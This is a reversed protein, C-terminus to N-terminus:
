SIHSSLNIISYNIKFCIRMLMSPHLGVKNQLSAYSHDDNEAVEDVEMKLTPASELDSTPTLNQAAYSDTDQEIKVTLVADQCSTSSMGAICGASGQSSMMQLVFNNHVDGQVDFM